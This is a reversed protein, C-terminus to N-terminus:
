LEGKARGTLERVWDWSFSCGKDSWRVRDAVRADKNKELAHLRKFKQQLCSDSIWRETWYQTSTGDGVSKQFSDSFNVGIDSLNNGAIVISRWTSHHNVNSLPRSQSLRGAPGYLSISVKAWLSNPENHIRWWWKGLLALNKCKLSGIYLGGYEYSLMIKEWKVWHIKKGLGSIGWFFERRVRELENLVCVGLCPIFLLLVITSEISGIQHANSSRRFFDNM